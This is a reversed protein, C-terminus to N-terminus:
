EEVVKRTKFIDLEKFIDNEFLDETLLWSLREAKPKTIVKQFRQM